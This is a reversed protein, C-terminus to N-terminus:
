SVGDRVYRALTQIISRAVGAHNDLLDDLDRRDLCLLSSKEVATVTATRPEPALAAMEGFVDGPGLRALELAEDHVRLSGAVVVFLTRGLSGKTFLIEGAAVHAESVRSALEMLAQQELSKFLPVAQLLM